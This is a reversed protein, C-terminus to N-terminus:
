QNEDKYYHWRQRAADPSIGLASGIETWPVPPEANRSEDILEGTRHRAIGIMANWYGLAERLDEPTQVAKAEQEAQDAGREGLQAADQMRRQYNSPAM